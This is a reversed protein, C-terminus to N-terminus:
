EHGTNRIILRINHKQAFNMGALANKDGTVNIAYQVYSGIGCQGQVNIPNCSNNAFYTQMVSSSSEDHFTPLNWHERLSSCSANDYTSIDAKFDVVDFNKQYCPSGIPITKILRGGVTTNLQDWQAISPWGSDGPVNRCGAPAVTFISPSSLALSSATFLVLATSSAVRARM